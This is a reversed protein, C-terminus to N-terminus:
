NQLRELNTFTYPYQNKEDAPFSDEAVIKWEAADFAPFFTDGDVRAHVYTLYMRDAMAMTQRFIDAGGLIFPEPDSSALSLASAISSAGLLGAQEAFEGRTVVIITRGSLPKGISDFTKRGMVLHHGMTLSKLRRLDSSQRWPLDNNLGIVGNDALAAIISITM